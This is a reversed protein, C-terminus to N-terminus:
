QDADYGTHEEDHQRDQLEAVQRWPLRHHGVGPRQDAPQAREHPYELGHGHRPFLRDLAKPLDEEALGPEFELTTVACTSHAVFVCALGERV